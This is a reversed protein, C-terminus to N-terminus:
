IWGSIQLYCRKEMSSGNPRWWRALSLRVLNNKEIVPIHAAIGTYTIHQIGNNEKPIAVMYRVKNQYFVRRLAFDPLWFGVSTKPIGNNEAIYGSGNMTSQLLGSFATNLSGRWVQLAHELLFSKLDAIREVRNIKHRLNHILFDEYHPPVIREKPVFSGEIQWVEGINFPTSEPQFEGTHTLLRLNRRGQWDLAGVCRKDGFRTKSVIIVKM